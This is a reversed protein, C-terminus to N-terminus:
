SLCSDGKMGTIFLISQKKKLGLLTFMRPSLFNQISFLKWWWTMSVVCHERVRKQRGDKHHMAELLNCQTETCLTQLDKSTLWCQCMWTCFVLPSHWQLTWGQKGLLTRCTKNMKSSYKSLYFAPPQVALKTPHIQKLCTTNKYLEWRAKGGHMKNTDTHPMWLTTLVHCCSPLFRM